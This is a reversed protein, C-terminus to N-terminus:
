MLLGFACPNMHWIPIRHHCRDQSITQSPVALRHHNSIHARVHIVFFLSQACSPESLSASLKVIFHTDILYHIHIIHELLKRTLIMLELHSHLFLFVDDLLLQLGKMLLRLLLRNSPGWQLLFKQM